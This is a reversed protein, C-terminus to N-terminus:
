AMIKLERRTVLAPKDELDFDWIWFKEFWLQCERVELVIEYIECINKTALIANERKRFEYLLIDRIHIEETAMSKILKEYNKEICNFLFLKM